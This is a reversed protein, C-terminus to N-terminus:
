NIMMSNRKSLAEILKLGANPKSLQICENLGTDSTFRLESYLLIPLQRNNSFRKDPGGNKNVYKWTHDVITSDKPVSSEEIFRTNKHEINLSSYSLSGIKKGEYIFIRDPFFYLKRSGVPICPVKVNTKMYKPRQDIIVVASRRVITGAGAYYKYNRNEAEANIRWKMECSKLEDFSDYFQQLEKELTEDIDYLLIVTKRYRDIQYLVLAALIGVFPHIYSLLLGFPWLSIKKLKAQMENLLEVSSSDVIQTVDSSEINVFNLEPENHKVITDINDPIIKKKKKTGLSSRYYLGNVGMHVYNGRPGTGIRFGKVGVSVGIGSKSFNFRIGGFSISERLYFGM